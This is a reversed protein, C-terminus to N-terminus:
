PCTDYTDRLEAQVDIAETTMYQSPETEKARTHAYDCSGVSISGGTLLNGDTSRSSGVSWRFSWPASTSSDALDIIDKLRRVVDPGPKVTVTLRTLHGGDITVRDMVGELDTDLASEM